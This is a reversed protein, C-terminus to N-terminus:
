RVHFRAQVSMEFGPTLEGRETRSNARPPAPPPAEWGAVLPVMGLSDDSKMM